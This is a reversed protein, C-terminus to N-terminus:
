EAWTNTWTYTNTTILVFGQGVNLMPIPSSWGSSSNTYSILRNSSTNWLQIVDGNGKAPDYGTINTLYGSIPITSSLYNTKSTVHFIQQDRVLGMYTNTFSHSNTNDIIVSYGPLLTLDGRGVWGPIDFFITNTDGAFGSGTWKYIRTGSQAAGWPATSFIFLDFLSNMPTNTGGLNNFANFLVTDDIQYFPDTVLNTGTAIVQNLFGIVKSYCNSRGVMYFKMPLDMVGPDVFNTNGTVENMTLNSKLLTWNTNTLSTVAYVNWNSSGLPGTMNFVFDGFGDNTGDFVFPAGCEGYLNSYTSSIQQGTHAPNQQFTPWSGNTAPPSSGWLCYLSQDQMPVVVSGDPLITPGGFINGPVSNTFAWVLAGNKVAYLVGDTGTKYVTGDSAVACPTETMGNTEPYIWNTGGLSNLSYSLGPTQFGLLRNGTGTYINGSADIGPTGEFAALGGLAPMNAVWNLSGDPNLDYLYSSFSGCVISGDAQLALSPDPDQHAPLPFFWNLNGNSSLSYLRDGEAIFLIDGGATVAASGDVDGFNGYFLDQPTFVWNTHGNSPNFATFHTVTNSERELSEDSGVYIIGNSGIAPTAFVGAAMGAPQIWNTAGNPAFSYLNGDMSGVYINGEADIAASGTGEQGSDMGTPAASPTYICNTWLIDGAIPDISFLLCDNTEFINMIPYYIQGSPYSIAPTADMGTTGYHLGEGDDPGQPAGFSSLPVVWRVTGPVPPAGVKAAFFLRSSDSTYIPNAVIFHGNNTVLSQNTVWPVTLDHTALLLYNTGPNTNTLTVVVTNSLHSILVWLNGDPSPEQYNVGGGGGGGGGGGPPNPPGSDPTVGGTVIVRKSITPPPV